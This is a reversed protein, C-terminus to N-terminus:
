KGTKLRLGAGVAWLYHCMPAYGTHLVEDNMGFMFVNEFYKEMLERLTKNSKLNIHQISSRPTAYESATVNPTGIILVGTPKLCKAINDLFVKETKKDLHEIVDILYIGDVKISPSEKNFDVHLYEVNKLHKLRGANGELLRKDWDVAYIKKVAQAIIPLGFGDGSGIEMVTNKGELIKACFKYRSLVFCMHKPDNILSYSTWPGLRLEQTDFQYGTGEKYLKKASKNVKSSKM